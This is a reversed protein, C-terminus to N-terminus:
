GSASGAGASTARDREFWVVKGQDLAEAGWRSALLDLLVIGRGGRDHPSPERLEPMTPDDDYVEVRYSDRSLVVDVRPASSAHVVANIVLESVLLEVDALIEETAADISARVFRRATGASAAESPFSSSMRAVAQETLAAALLIEAVLRDPAVRKEVYGVAGSRQVIEAMRRRPFNSLVVVRTDPLRDHLEPLVEIGSRKPMALDLVVLDPVEALAVRLAEDGDAAEVVQDIGARALLRRLVDRQDPDDDAILVRVPSSLPADTM